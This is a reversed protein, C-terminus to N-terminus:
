GEVAAAADDAAAATAVTAAEAAASAVNAADAASSIAFFLLPRFCHQPDPDAHIRVKAQIRFQQEPDPDLM